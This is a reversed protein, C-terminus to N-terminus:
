KLRLPLGCACFFVQDAVAALRQNLRGVLDRFKRSGADAPVLGMGVEDSVFVADCGLDPLLSLLSDFEPYNEDVDNGCHYILNGVWVTLSDVIAVSGAPLPRLAGALDVPAEVTLFDTGRERRHRAIRERFEEDLPEATAIYTKREYGRSLSLAYNSKGSRCGGTVLVIHVM